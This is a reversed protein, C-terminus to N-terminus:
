NESPVDAAQPSEIRLVGIRDSVMIEGTRDVRATVVVGGANGGRGVRVRANLTGDPGTRVTEGERLDGGNPGTYLTVDSNPPLGEASVWVVGNPRVITESVRLTSDIGRGRASVANVPRQRYPMLKEIESYETWEGRRGHGAGFSGDGLYSQIPKKMPTNPPAFPVAMSGGLSVPVKLATGSRLAAWDVGPNLAIVSETPASHAAAIRGLSDGPQVVYTAAQILGAEYAFAIRDYNVLFPVEVVQGALVHRPTAVGPNYELLMHVPVDCLKAIDYLTEGAEAVVRRECAGDLKEGQAEGHILHALRAGAIGDYAVLTSYDAPQAQNVAADPRMALVYGNRHVRDAAPYVASSYAGRASPATTTACGAAVLALVSVAGSMAVLKLRGTMSFEGAFCGPGARGHRGTQRYTLM